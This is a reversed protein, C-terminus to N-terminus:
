SNWILKLWIILRYIDLLYWVYANESSNEGGDCLACPRYAAPAVYLNVYLAQQSEDQRNEPQFRPIKYRASIIVKHASQKQWVKIYM